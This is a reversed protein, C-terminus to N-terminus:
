AGAEALAGRASLRKYIVREGEDRARIWRSGNVAVEAPALKRWQARAYAIEWDELSAARRLKRFTVAVTDGHAEALLQKLVALLREDVERKGTPTLKAHGCRPCVFRSNLRRWPAGCKPCFLLRGEGLYRPKRRRKLELVATRHIAAYFIKSRAAAFCHIYM